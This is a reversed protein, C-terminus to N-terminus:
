KNNDKSTKAEIKDAEDKHDANLTVTVATGKKLDAMKCDKGDCTVKADKAVTLQHDKGDKDTMTIQRNAAKPITGTVTSDAKDAASTTTARAARDSSRLWRWPPSWLCAKKM